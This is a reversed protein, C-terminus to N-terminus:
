RLSRLEVRRNKQLGESTTNDAIPRQGGYGVAGIHGPNVGQAVLYNRVTEARQLSLRQNHAPDGQANTHGVVQLHLDSHRSLINAVGDLTARAEDTLEHSNDDFNVGELNIPVSAACGTSEVVVGQQTERCLDISNPVGDKDTDPATTQLAAIEVAVPKPQDGPAPTVVIDAVETAASGTQRLENAESQATTLAAQAQTLEQNRVALDAQLGDREAIVEALTKATELLTTSRNELQAKLETLENKFTEAQAQAQAESLAETSTTTGTQVQQQLAETATQLEAQVTSLEEDRSALDARLQDREETLTQEANLLTTKQNELQAKLETLENNFTEAQARAESLQQSSATTESQVQQLAETATQLEAQVTSLEEDRSALDARLQDREETLTQEANLLTTKQHELQAKLETLENNLTEAQARAESLAETSTTTGTQVQQLAETATQLEAQATSLQEDRSALDARL